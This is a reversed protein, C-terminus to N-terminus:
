GERERIEVQSRFVVKESKENIGEIYILNSDLASMDKYLVLTEGPLAENIYNIEISKTEYKKHDEVNFCDMGYDVYRSNNLHGNFDIDSYGIVKRYVVELKQGFAKLKGLRCDIARKIDPTNPSYGILETKVIKRQSIDIVVWNSVAAAIINGASDRALFDREFDLKRQEQQWTEILIEEGFFPNRFIEVKIRTLIWAFNFNNKFDEIGFGRNEVDMEATEQFYNFLVSLKLTKMFDVDSVEIRYKKKYPLVIDM